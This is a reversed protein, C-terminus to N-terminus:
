RDYYAAKVAQVDRGLDQVPQAIGRRARKLLTLAIKVMVAVLVLLGLGVALGAVWEDFGMSTLGAVAAMALVIIAVLTVIAACVIIAFAAVLRKAGTSLSSQLLALEDRILASLGQTTETLLEATSPDHEKNM